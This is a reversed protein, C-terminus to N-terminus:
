QAIALTLVSINVNPGETGSLSSICNRLTAGTTCVDDILLIHRYKSAGNELLPSNAPLYYVGEVNLQRKTNSMSTQSKHRHAKLGNIVPLNTVSAVGLALEHSQNYGRKLRRSYHLPVPVICDVDTFIGTPYLDRAMQEGIHRALRQYGHYKISVLLRSVPEHRGYFLWSHAQRLNPILGLRDYMGDYGAPIYPLSSTCSDCIYHQHANLQHGCIACCRPWLIESLSATLERWLSM